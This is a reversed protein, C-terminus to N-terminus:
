HVYQYSTLSVDSEVDSQRLVDGSYIFIVNYTIFIGIRIEACNVYFSDIFAKEFSISAVIAFLWKLFVSFSTYGQVRYVPGFRRLGARSNDARM